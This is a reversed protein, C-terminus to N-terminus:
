VGPGSTERESLIETLRDIRGAIRVASPSGPAQRAWEARLLSLEHHLDETPRERDAGAAHHEARIRLEEREALLIEREAFADNPLASLLDQVESM